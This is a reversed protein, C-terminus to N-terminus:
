HFVFHFGSESRFHTAASRRLGHANYGLGPVFAGLSAVTTRQHKKLSTDFHMFEHNPADNQDAYEFQTPVFSVESATDSGGCIRLTDSSHVRLRSFLFRGERVSTMLPQVHGLSLLSPAPLVEGQPVSIAVFAKINARHPFTQHSKEFFM